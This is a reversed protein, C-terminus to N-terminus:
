VGGTLVKVTDWIHKPRLYGNYLPTIKKRSNEYHYVAKQATKVSYEMTYTTGESEVYQGLLAFNGAENPIVEPRDGLKRKLFQAHGFPLVTKICILSRIGNISSKLKIKDYIGLLCFLEILIELETADKMTKKVYKGIGKPYIGYVWMVKTDKPQKSFWPQYPVILSLGWPSDEFTTIRNIDPEAGIKERILQYISPDNCTITATVMTTLEPTETFFDPNKFVNPKKLSLNKWLTWSGKDKPAVISGITFLVIDNKNIKIIKNKLSNKKSSRYYLASVYIKLNESDEELVEVLDADTVETNNIIHVGKKKLFDVIPRIISEQNDIPTSHISHLNHMNPFNQYFVQLYRKM